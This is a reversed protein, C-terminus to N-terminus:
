PFIQLGLFCVLYPQPPLELLCFSLCFSLYESAFLKGTDLQQSTAEGKGAVGTASTPGGSGASALEEEDRYLESSSARASSGDRPPTTSSPPADPVAGSPAGQQREEGALGSIDATFICVRVSALPFHTTFERQPSRRPSRRPNPEPSITTPEPAGTTSASPEDGTSTKAKKAMRQAM